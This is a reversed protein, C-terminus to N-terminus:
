KEKKIKNKNYKWIFGGSTKSLKKLNNNISNQSINTIFSAEKISNFSNILKLDKNYQNISKKSKEREKKNNEEWTILQINDFSYEKYDNLRDVSPRLKKNYNSKIWNNYLTEFNNQSYLWNELELKTYKPEEYNRLKSNTKQNKYISSILGKKTKFYNKNILNNCKKCDNRGKYFDKENKEINCKNCILGM